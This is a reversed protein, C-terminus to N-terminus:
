LPKPTSAIYQQQAQNIEMGRVRDDIKIIQSELKNIDRQIYGFSVNLENITANSSILATVIATTVCVLTTKTLEAILGNPKEM